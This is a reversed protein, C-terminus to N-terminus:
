NVTLRNFNLSEFYQQLVAQLYKLKKNAVGKKSEFINNQLLPDEKWNFFGQVKEGNYQLVHTSDIIQYVGNVYQLSFRYSNEFVSSGYSKIEQKCGALSLVTPFIDLQQVVRSDKGKFNGTDSYIFITIRYRGFASAYYPDDSDSTHDATFVFITNKFWPASKVRDFFKKFAYDTYRVSNHM